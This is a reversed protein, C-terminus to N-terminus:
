SLLGPMLKELRENVARHFHTVATAQEDLKQHADALDSALELCTLILQRERDTNPDASKLENVMADVRAALAKLRAEQGTPTAFRYSRGGITVETQVVSM